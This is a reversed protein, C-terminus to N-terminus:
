FAFSLEGFVSNRSDGTVVCAPCSPSGAPIIENPLLGLHAYFFGLSATDTLYKKAGIWAFYYGSLDTSFNAWYSPGAYYAMPPTQGNFGIAFGGLEFTTQGKAGPRPLYPGDDIQFFGTLNDTWASGTFPNNGLRSTGELDIRWRGYNLIAFASIAATNPYAAGSGASVYAGTVPLGANPGAFGGANAGFSIPSFGAGCGGAKFVQSATFPLVKSTGLNGATAATVTAGAGPATVQAPTAPTIGQCLIAYPDWIIQHFGSYNIYTMGLDTQGKDLQVDAEGALVQQTAPIGYLLNQTAASDDFGYMVQANVVANRFGVRAGDVYDVMAWATAATQRPGEDMQFKGVKAYIGGPSTYQYWLEQLRVLSNIVGDANSVAATSATCTAGTIATPGAGANTCFGPSTTSVFSTSDYRFTNALKILYQSHDDPNGGFSMSLYSMGLGHNTNGIANTNQSMVPQSQNGYALAGAVNSGPVGPSAPGVTTTSSVSGAYPIAAGPAITAGAVSIPLPGNNGQISQSYTFAREWLTLHLQQRRVAAATSASVAQTADVQRQLSDVHQEASKLEQGFAALLKKTADLDAASVAKGATIDAEIQDVARYALVAVEYRTMPRNGNFRGDPYGKVIGDKV